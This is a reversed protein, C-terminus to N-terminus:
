APRERAPELARPRVPPAGRLEQEYRATFPTFDLRPVLDLLFLVLDDEPLKADPGHTQRRYADPNWSVYTKARPGKHGPELRLDCPLTLGIHPIM